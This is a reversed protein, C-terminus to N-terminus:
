PLSPTEALQLGPQKLKKNMRKKMFKTHNPTKVMYQKPTSFQRTLHKNTPLFSKNKAMVTYFPSEM